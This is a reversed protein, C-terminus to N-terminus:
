YAAALAARGAPTLEGLLRLRSLGGDPYVDVRVHTVAPAAALRFQHRTDPQLRTRGLLPVPSEEAAWGHLEVEASANYKYHTTDVEAERLWGAAALRVVVWDHGGGRRRRTEWGEGMHRAPGPLLLAAPSSYFGDSSDVVLGGHEAAALDRTLGDFRRPDPCVRGTVRLRAVGGDPYIGLNVHTYRMLDRVPFVNHTDGHLPSSPVLEVWAVEGLEATSPYGDVTCAHVSAEAPFNGTFGTTDVDVSTIVGPAGLRVLAWDHGPVRRRRTEWGDVIEGKHGYTGPAVRPGGPVLLNEKEGFSEDSAALVSGGLLRSALDM